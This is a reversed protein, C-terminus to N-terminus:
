SENDELAELEKYLKAKEEQLHVIIDLIQTIRTNLELKKILFSTDTKQEM